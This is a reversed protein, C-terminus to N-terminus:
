RWGRSLWACSQALLSEMLDPRKPGAPSKHGAFYSGSAQTAEPKRGQGRSVFIALPTVKPWMFDIPRDVEQRQLDPLDCLDSQRRRLM